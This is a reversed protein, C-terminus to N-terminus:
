GRFEYPGIDYGAGSPRTKGDLDVAPARFATGNDIAPSGPRLHYDGASGWAPRVFRPEACRNGRGLAGTNVQRATYERGNAYVQVPEATGRKFLNSECTFNVSPGIYAAGYGHSVICNRMALSIPIGPDDYQVTMSYARRTRNDDLAVNVLEFRANRTGSIVLSTWESAPNGDGTGYVLTNRVVSGTGWLKVGDCDNNAVICRDIRTLNMKSDLGDGRNHLARTARIVLPGPSRELGLGDPRDYPRDDGSGGRYYHGAYSLNCREVTLNRIGGHTGAPGGIGGGGCFTVTCNKITVNLTDSIDIGEWDLHHIYLDALVSDRLVGGTASIGKDFWAGRDSTIELNKLRVFRCGSIDAAAPLGDRGALIPRRPGEGRITIWKGAVGSGPTIMDDWYRSLYYTGSRIVLTDGPRLQKSGYGPTAWPLLRTGPNADDGSPSVYYTAGCCLGVPLCVLVVFILPPILRSVWRRTGSGPVGPVHSRAPSNM